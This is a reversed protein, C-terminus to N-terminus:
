FKIVKFFETMIIMKVINIYILILFFILFFMTFLLQKGKGRM